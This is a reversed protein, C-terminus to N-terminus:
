IIQRELAFFEYDPGVFHAQVQELWESIRDKRPPPTAVGWFELIQEDSVNHSARVIDDRRSIGARYVIQSVKVGGIKMRGGSSFKDRVVQSMCGQTLWYAMPYGFKKPDSSPGFVMPCLFFAEGILKYRESDEMSELHRISIVAQVTASFGDSKFNM